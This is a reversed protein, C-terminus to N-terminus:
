NFQCFINAGQIQFSLDLKIENKNDITFTIFEGSESLVGYKGGKLCIARDADDPIGIIDYEPSLLITLVEDLNKEGSKCLSIENEM